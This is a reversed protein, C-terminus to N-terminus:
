SSLVKKALSAWVFDSELIQSESMRVFWAYRYMRVLADGDFPVYVTEPLLPTKPDVPNAERGLLDELTRESGDPNRGGEAKQIVDVGMTKQVDWIMLNERRADAATWATPGAGVIANWKEAAYQWGPHSPRASWAVWPAPGVYESGPLASAESPYIGFTAAQVGSIYPAFSPGVCLTSDGMMVLGGKTALINATAWQRWLAVPLSEADESVVLGASTLMDSVARRGLLVHITFDNGQTKRVCEM